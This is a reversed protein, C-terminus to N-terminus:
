RTPDSNGGFQGMVTAAARRTRALAGLDFRGNRQVHRVSLLKPTTRASRTLTQIFRKSHEHGDTAQPVSISIIIHQFALDDALPHFTMAM